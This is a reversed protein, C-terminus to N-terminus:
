EPDMALDSIKEIEFLIVGHPNVNCELTILSTNKQRSCHLDPVSISRLTELIDDTVPDPQGMRIWTDYVSGHDQDLTYCRIDYTGETVHLIGHFKLLNTQRFIQYRHDHSVYGLFKPDMTKEYDSMNFLLVHFGHSSRTVIYQNGIAVVSKDLKHVLRFAFYAAKPIGRKDFLGANGDFILNSPRSQDNNDSLFSFSLGDVASITSIYTYAIYTSMFATDRILDTIYYTINWESAIVPTDQFGCERAINRIFHLMNLLYEKNTLSLYNYTTPPYPFIGDFHSLDDMCSYLHLSIHAPQIKEAKCFLFFDKYWQIGDPLSFNPTGLKLRPDVSQFVEWTAKYFSFFEDQTGQWYSGESSINATNWFDFRWNLIEDKYLSKYHQLFSRILTQWDSLSAPRSMNPHYSFSLPRYSEALHAPMYGIEIFPILDLDIIRKIIRDLNGWYIIPKEDGPKTYVKNLDSFIDRIHVHTFNCEKKTKKLQEYIDEQLLSLSAGIGIARIRNDRCLIRPHALDLELSLPTVAAAPQLGDSFPRNALFDKSWYNDYLFAAKQILSQEKDSLSNESPGSKHHNRYASPLEHMYKQFSNSYSKNSQFGHDLAIELLSKDTYLLDSLSSSVRYRNLYDTFKENFHKHFFISFYQPHLGVYASIDEMRMKEAYHERIYTLIQGIRESVYDSNQIGPSISNQFERYISLLLANINTLLQLRRINQSTLGSFLISAICHCLIRYFDPNIEPSIHFHDFYINELYPIFLHLYERSVSIQYYSVPKGHCIISYPVNPPFFFADSTHVYQTNNHCKVYCSGELLFCIVFTNEMDLQEEDTDVIMHEIYDTDSSLIQKYM